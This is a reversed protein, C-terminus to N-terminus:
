KSDFLNYTTHVTSLQAGRQRSLKEIEHCKKTDLLHRVLTKCIRGKGRQNVSNKSALVNMYNV